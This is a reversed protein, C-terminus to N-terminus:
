VDEDAGVARKITIGLERIKHRLSGRTIGLLKAAQVQNGGTPWPSSNTPSACL